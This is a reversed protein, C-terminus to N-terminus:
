WDGDWRVCSSNITDLKNRNLHQRSNNQCNKGNDVIAAVAMLTTIAIDPPTGPVEIKKLGQYEKPIKNKNKNNNNNNYNGNNNGGAM